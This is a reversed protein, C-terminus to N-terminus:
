TAEERINSVEHVQAIRQILESEANKVFVQNNAWKSEFHVGSRGRLLELVNKQTKVALKELESKMFTSMEKRSPFAMKNLRDLVKQTDQNFSIVVNATGDKALTDALCHDIKSSHSM